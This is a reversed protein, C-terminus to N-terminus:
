ARKSAGSDLVRLGMQVKGDAICGLFHAVDVRKWPKFFGANQREQFHPQGVRFLCELAVTKTQTMDAKGYPTPNRRQPPCPSPPPWSVQRHPVCKKKAFRCLPTARMPALQAHACRNAERAGTREWRLLDSAPRMASRACERRACWRSPRAKCCALRKSYRADRALSVSAQQECATVHAPARYERDRRM